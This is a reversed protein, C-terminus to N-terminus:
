ASSLDRVPPSRPFRGLEAETLVPTPQEPVHPQTMKAMPSVEIIEEAVCWNYLRRLSRFRV